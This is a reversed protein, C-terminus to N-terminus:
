GKSVILSETGFISPASKLIILVDMYGFLISMLIIEPIFVFFFEVYDGIFISNLGKLLIGLIM